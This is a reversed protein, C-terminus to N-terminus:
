SRAARVFWSVLVHSQEEGEGQQRVQL